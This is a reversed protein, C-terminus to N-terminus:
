GFMRKWLSRKAELEGGVLQRTLAAMGRKMASGGYLAKSGLVSTKSVDRDYPSRSIPRWASRATSSPRRCPAM